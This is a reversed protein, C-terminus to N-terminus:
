QKSKYSQPTCYDLFNNKYKKQSEKVTKLFFKFGLFTDFVVSLTNQTLRKNSLVRKYFSISM